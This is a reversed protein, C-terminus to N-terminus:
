IAMEKSKPTAPSATALKEKEEKLQKLVSPKKEKILDARSSLKEVNGLASSTKEEIGMMMKKIAKLPKIATESQVAMENDREKGIIARGMNKTHKVAAGFEQTVANVTGITKDLRTISNKVSGHFATLNDQLSLLESTKNLALVGNEKVGDLINQVTGMFKEKITDLQEKLKKLGNEMISIQAQLEQHVPQAVATKDSIDIPLQAKVAQLEAMATNLTKEILTINDMLSQTAQAKETQNNQKLLHVLQNVAQADILINDQQRTEM